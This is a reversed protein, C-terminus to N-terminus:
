GNTKLVNFTKNEMKCRARRCAALEAVTGATVPLNTVFSHYHIRKGVANRMEISFWDVVIADDSGRLPVGCLWCHVTTTSTRRKRVTQRLEELEAGHPSESITRHLSSTCALIFDAGSRKAAAVAPQCAFLDDGISRTASGPYCRCSLYRPPPV